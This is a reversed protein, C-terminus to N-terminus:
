RGRRILLWGSAILGGAIAGFILGVIKDALTLYSDFYYLAAGIVVNGGIALGIRQWAPRDKTVALAGITIFWVIPNLATGFLRGFFAALDHM